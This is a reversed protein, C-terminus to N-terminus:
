TLSVVVSQGVYEPLSAYPVIQRKQAAFTGMVEGPSGDANNAYYVTTTQAKTDDAQDPITTSAYAAVVGGAGLFGVALISGVAFRWSPLWRHLGHYGTRPYDFFRRKPASSRSSTATGPPASRKGRAPARRNTRAL